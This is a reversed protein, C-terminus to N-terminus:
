GPDDIASGGFYFSPVRRPTRRSTKEEKVGASGAGKQEGGREEERSPREALVHGVQAEKEKM